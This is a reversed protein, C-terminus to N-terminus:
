YVEMVLPITERRYELGGVLVADTRSREAQEIFAWNSTNRNAAVVAAVDAELDDLMDETDEESWSGQDSYLVFVYVDVYYRASSARKSMQPRATGSSAVVVVPSQGAFDGVLYGYVAQAAKGTGTLASELLTALAQRAAKRETM